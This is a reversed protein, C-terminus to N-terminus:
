LERLFAAFVLLLGVGAMNFLAYNTVRKRSRNRNYAVVKGPQNSRAIWVGRGLFYLNGAILMTVLVKAIVLGQYLPIDLKPQHMYALMFGSAAVVFLAGFLLKTAQRLTVTRLRGVPLKLQQAAGPLVFAIVLLIGAVVVVGLWHLVNILAMVMAM